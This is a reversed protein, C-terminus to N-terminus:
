ENEYDENNHNLVYSGSTLYSAYSLWIVYPVLILGAPKYARYFERTTLTAVSLLVFSEILATGRLKYKFYLLSWIYNLSLQTFYVTNNRKNEKDTGKETVLMHSIGMSTYLIPWVVPFVYGPPSFPPNKYAEYDKRANSTALKGVLLGGVVPLAIMTLKKFM